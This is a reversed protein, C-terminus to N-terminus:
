DKKNDFKLVDEIHNKTPLHEAMKSLLEALSEKRTLMWYFGTGHRHSHGGFTRILLDTESTYKTFVTVSYYRGKAVYARAKQKVIEYADRLPPSAIRGM